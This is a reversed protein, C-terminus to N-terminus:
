GGPAECRECKRTDKEGPWDRPQDLRPEVGMTSGIKQRAGGWSWSRWRRTSPPTTAPPAPYGGGSDVKTTGLNVRSRISRLELTAATSGPAARRRAVYVCTRAAACHQLCGPTSSSV